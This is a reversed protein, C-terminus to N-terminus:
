CTLYKSTCLNKNAVMKDPTDIKRKLLSDKKIAGLSGCDSPEDSFIEFPTSTPLDKSPVIDTLAEENQSESLGSNDKIPSLNLSQPWISKRPLVSKRSIGPVQPTKFELKSHGISPRQMAVSTKQDNEPMASTRGLIVSKRDSMISKREPLVSQRGPMMSFRPMISARREGIVTEDLNDTDIDMAHTYKKPNQTWKEAMLEENSMDTLRGTAGDVIRLAEYDVAFGVEPQEQMPVVYEMSSNQPLNKFAFNPSMRIGCEVADDWIPDYQLTFKNSIGKNKFWRYGRYEEESFEKGNGPYCFPKSYMPIGKPDIPEPIVLPVNDWDNKQVRNKAVFNAPRQFGLDYTKITYPIPTFSFNDELIKFGLQQPEAILQGTKIGLKAKNWPSPEHTNERTRLNDVLSKVFSENKPLLGSATDNSEEEEKFVQVVTNSGGVAGLVNEQLLPGPRVSKLALGTRSTGVHRKKHTRLSTLATRREELSSRFLQQNGPEDKYLIRQSMSFGFQKHAHELDELPQPRTRLGKQYIEEAKKFNDAADYYYAWGIYLDAVMTGIGQNYLEEYLNQPNPQNDIYKMYIKIMRRDQQYKEVHEFVSICKIM